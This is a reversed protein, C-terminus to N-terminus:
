LDAGKIVQLYSDNAAHFDPLPLIPVPLTKNGEVVTAGIKAALLDYDIGQSTNNSSYMNVVSSPLFQSSFDIGANANIARLLDKNNSTAEATIVSEGRSLMAPISDSTGSGPGYLDVAGKALKIGSIKASQVVGGAIILGGQVNANIAAGAHAASGVFDYSAASAFAKATEIGAISFAKSAQQYTNIGIEAIAAAKGIATNEGVLGRIMSFTDRYSNLKNNLVDKDLQKQIIAYKKDILDKDAGSKEAAALEQALNNNLELQRSEFESETTAIKNELDIAKKDLDAQKKEEELALKEDAFKTDIDRIVTNYEEQSIIGQNLRETQFSAEAESIRNLRDLEQAVLEDTLFKNANLRVKNNDLFLQLENQANAVVVDSQAKLFDNQINNQATLFRLKDIETKKTADFEKQAIELKKDRIQEEYKLGDALSKARIGQQSIFLDLEAKAKNAADDLIKQISEQRKKEAEIADNAAKERKAQADEALKDQANQNKELRKTSEADIEIKGLEAKKLNELEEDTIKGQNLLYTGYAITNRQLNALEDNSLGGKIRAAEIANKLEANALASRQKYNATEIAEAKLLFAIREEETLTRNKSKVILEDYQQSAKANAVEQSNQLDALDQQAAKLKAADKAAKAMNDGLESFAKGSDQTSDFLSALAQQVVRIAAGFAAMTQEIKDVLPDFTKFYSILLAVAIVILGIGTAAVALAFIRMAGTGINTAITLAKQSLTMSETGDAANRMNQATEVIDDKLPQFLKSSQKLADSIVALEGGFLGTEAIADKIASTYDGIGIKQKELESVNEKILKDNADIKANLENLIELHNEDAINLENRIKKLEANNNKADTISNNQQDIALTIKENITLFKDDAQLLNVLQKQNMNYESSLKNVKAALQIYTDSSTDGAKKLAAQAERSKDLEAKLQSSKAIIADVDIDLEIIKRKEGM